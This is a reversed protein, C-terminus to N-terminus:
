SSRAELSGVEGGGISGGRNAILGVIAHGVSLIEGDPLTPNTDFGYVLGAAWRPADDANARM